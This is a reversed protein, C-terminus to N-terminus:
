IIMAMKMGKLEGDQISVVFYHASLDDGDMSLSYYFINNTIINLTKPYLHKTKVLCIDSKTREMVKKAHKILSSKVPPIYGPKPLFSICESKFVEDSGWDIEDYKMHWDVIKFAREEILIKLESTLNANTLAILKQDTLEKISEEPM